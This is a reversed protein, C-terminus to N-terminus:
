HRAPGHQHSGHAPPTYYGHGSRPTAAGHPTVRPAPYSRHHEQPVAFESSPRYHRPAAEFRHANYVRYHRLERPEERFVVWGRHSPYYWHGHAFYAYHGHYYVRPYLVIDVPVTDVYTAPYDYVVTASTTGACGATVALSLAAAGLMGWRSLTVRQFHTFPPKHNM